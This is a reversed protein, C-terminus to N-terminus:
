VDYRATLLREIDAVVRSQVIGLDLGPAMSPLAADASTCEEVHAGFDRLRQVFAPEAPPSGAYIFRMEPAPAKEITTASFAELNERWSNTLRWGLLDESGALRRMLPIGRSTDGLWQQHRALLAGLYHRGDLVPNWLILYGVDGVREAARLAIGAGLGYGVIGVSQADRSRADVIAEVTDDIWKEMTADSMDGASDGTGSYDFRLVRLGQRALRTALVRFTRLAYDRDHGFPYCMVVAARRWHEDTPYHWYGYLHSRTGFFHPGM